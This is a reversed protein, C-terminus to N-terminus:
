GLDLAALQAALDVAAPASRVGAEGAAFPVVLYRGNKVADLGATAPSSELREIKSAATNWTADVLVIVDPDADVVAEWSYSTWTDRVDGAINRLGVADLLLQPNGIGAGVYPTDTGSSYWLASLGSEDPVIADLQARQDAILADAADEAEFISGVEAIEDFLGDWTLPDPQYGSEKCASPSVYTAIGLSALEDREGAGDASFNSEWGGYVLDPELDLVAEESPVQDSISLLDAGDEALDYPLPGDQFATGIIRDGLGLALLMETSTSKITVVREPAGDFSVDTGCNDVTISAAASADDTASADAASGASSCSALLAVAAASAVLPLALRSRM